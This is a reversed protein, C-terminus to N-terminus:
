LGEISDAIREYSLRWVVTGSRAIGDPEVQGRVGPGLSVSCTGSPCPLARLMMEPRDPDHNMM